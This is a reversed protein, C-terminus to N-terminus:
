RSRQSGHAEAEAWAPLRNKNSAAGKLPLAEAQMRHLWAPALVSGLNSNRYIMSCLVTDTIIAMTARSILKKRPTHTRTENKEIFSRPLVSIFVARFAARNIVMDSSVALRNRAV